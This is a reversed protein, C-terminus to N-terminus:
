ISSYKLFGYPFPLEEGHSEYEVLVNRKVIDEPVPVNKEIMVAMLSRLDQELVKVKELAEDCQMRLCQMLFDFEEEAGIEEDTKCKENQMLCRGIGNSNAFVFTCRMEPPVKVFVSEGRVNRLRFSFSAGERMTCPVQSEPSRCERLKAPIIIM